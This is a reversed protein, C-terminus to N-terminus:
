SFIELWLNKRKNARFCQFSECYGCGLAIDQHEKDPYMKCGIPGGNNGGIKEHIANVCFDCCPICKKNCLIM